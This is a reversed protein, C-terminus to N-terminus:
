AEPQLLDACLQAIETVTKGEGPYDLVKLGLERAYNLFDPDTDPSIAAVADSYKIALRVLSKFDTPEDGLAAIVEKSIGASKLKEHFREDLTGEFQEEPILFVIKSHNFTPDDSYLQNLYVPVLSSIWGDCIVVAPEWRLKNVTELIGRVFFMMREDNEEPLLRTELEKTNDTSFYDESDIFYVQMRTPQLTAVKIVLPHDMDDIVINIGSLRIVEHLQNRRENISSYKPMFTRVEYGREQMGEALERTHQAVESKAIYPALEQAIFLVKKHEKAMTFFVVSIKQLTVCKKENRLFVSHPHLGGMLLGSSDNVITGM